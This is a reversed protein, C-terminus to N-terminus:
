RRPETGVVRGNRFNVVHDGPYFYHVQWRNGKRKIKKMDLPKGLLTLVEEETMGNQVRGFNEEEFPITAYSGMEELTIPKKIQLPVKQEDAASLPAASLSMVFLVVFVVPTWCMRKVVCRRRGSGETRAPEEAKERIATKPSGWPKM